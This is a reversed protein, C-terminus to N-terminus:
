SINVYREGKEVVARERSLVKVMVVPSNSKSEIKRCFGAPSLSSVSSIGKGGIDKIMQTIKTIMIGINSVLM